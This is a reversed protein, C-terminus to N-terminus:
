DDESLREVIHRAIPIASTAAPSPANAVHLCHETKVFHFDEILNGQRDVAQARIGAPYPTLDNLTISPCYQQVNSLYRRKSLSTGLESIASGAHQRILRWFGSYTLTEATDRFSFDRRRYGERKTALVANPGVTFGGDMKRTLHVGLFPREPDPVPYILHRVLDDPQNQIRFYEGKFPIIQFDPEHGFCRILRDAQLGACIVVKGAQIVETTNSLNAHLEVACHHAQEEGRIAHSNLSLEGGKQTFIAAMTQCIERYNVIGTTPSLLGALGSIHPELERLATSDVAEIPIGNSLAREHLASLRSAEAETTAVILKGCRQYPISHEDCFDTTASVGERCLIAKLSGPKYYVGAHIVGSNHGTQHQAVSGAKEALRIHADPFRQQLELATALGVIGGGIILFDATTTQHGSM